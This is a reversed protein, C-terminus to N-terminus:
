ADWFNDQDVYTLISYEYGGKSFPPPINSQVHRDTPRYFRNPRSDEFKSHHNTIVVHHGLIRNSTVQDSTLPGHPTYM